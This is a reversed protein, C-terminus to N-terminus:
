PRAGPGVGIDHGPAEAKLGALSFAYGVVVLVLFIFIATVLTQGAFGGLHPALTPRQAIWSSYRPFGYNYLMAFVVAFLFFMLLEM